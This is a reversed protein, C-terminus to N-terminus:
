MDMDMEVWGDGEDMDEKKVSDEHAKEHGGSRRTAFSYSKIDKDTYDKNKFEKDRYDKFEKYEKFEGVEVHIDTAVDNEGDIEIDSGEPEDESRSGSYSRSVSDSRIDSHPVSWSGAGSEVSAGIAGNTSVGDTSEEVSFSANLSDATSGNGNRYGSFVNQGTNAPVSMPQPKVPPAQDSLNYPSISGGSVVRAIPSHQTPTPQALLGPRIQTIEDSRKIMYDHLRPGSTSTSTSSAVSGSRTRDMRAGLMGPSPVSSSKLNPRSSLSPTTLPNMASANARSPPPLVGGSVYSPWLSRDDPLSTSPGLHSLITAAELLQVQQHKSLLFKSAERWHPSHEWRHKVLCSPHRYVKSCSECQFITRKKVKAGKTVKKSSGNISVADDEYDEVDVEGDGIDQALGQTPVSSAYGGIPLNPPPSGDEYSTSLFQGQGQGNTSSQSRGRHSHLNNPTPVSATIGSPTLTLASLSALTSAASLSAPNPRSVANRADSMRRRTQGTSSLRRHKLVNAKSDKLSRAISNGNTTLATESLGDADLVIPMPAATAAADSLSFLATLGSQVPTSAM